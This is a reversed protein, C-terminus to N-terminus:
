SAWWVVDGEADEFISFIDARRLPNGEAAEGLYNIFTALRPDYRNVGGGRTAAWLFGDSDEFIEQVFDHSIRSAEDGDRNFQTMEYGDYRILGNQTGIWIFGQSDQFITEINNNLLGNEASLHRFRVSTPIREDAQAVSSVLFFFLLAFFLPSLKLLKM